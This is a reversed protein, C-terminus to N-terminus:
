EDTIAHPNGGHSGRADKFPLLPCRRLLAGVSSPASGKNLEPLPKCCWGVFESEAPVILAMM